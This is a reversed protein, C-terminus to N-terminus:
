KNKVEAIFDMIISSTDSNDENAVALYWENGVGRKINALKVLSFDENDTKYRRFIEEIDCNTDRELQRILRVRDSVVLRIISLDILPNKLLQEAGALNFVGINIKDQDLDQFRTGYRWGKFMCKEIFDQSLFQDDTLFHYNIGDIEGARAPRTTCSIIEHVSTDNACIRKLWYDKGAGSKGILAIIKIKKM